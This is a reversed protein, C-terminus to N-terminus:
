SVTTRPLPTPTPTPPTYTPTSEPINGRSTEQKFVNEQFKLQRDITTKQSTVLAERQLIALDNKRNVAINNISSIDLRNTTATVEEKTKKFESNNISYLFVLFIIFVGMYVSIMNRVNKSPEIPKDVSFLESRINKSLVGLSLLNSKEAEIFKTPGCVFFMKDQVPNTYKLIMEKDIIRNEVNIEDFSVEEHTIALVTKINDGSIDRLEDRFATTELTRASYLLTINQTINKDSAYRMMSAFPTIGIGGAILVTSSYKKEDYTFEGFPGYVSINDGIKLESLRKTFKGTIKIGFQLYNRQIPSSAISFPRSSMPYGREDYPALMAYQGPTYLFIEGGKKPIIDLIIMNGPVLSINKVKYKM